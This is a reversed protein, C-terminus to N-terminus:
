YQATVTYVVTTSYELAPQGIDVQVKYTIVFEEDIIPTGEVTGPNDAVVDGPYSTAFAAYCPATGGGPCTSNNFRNVGQVLTDSSTYGFGRNGSLWQAPSAWTGGDFNIITNEGSTLLSTIYSRILYGNYANTSTTLTSTKTSTFNNGSNLNDFTVILSDINFDLDPAVQQGSSSVVGSTNGANDTARVNFYYIDTTNLTLGTVTVLTNTGVNTWNKINTGGVSTGISYEYYNLGSVSSDFNAWNGSLETLSATGFSKDVGPEDGDYVNGGTPATTDIGYDRESESNGGFSVWSSYADNDDKARAQWHYETNNTQSSITVSATQGSNVLNGCATDSNDFATGLPKTEVCLRVQDSDPDSVAASFVVSTENTWDGVALTTEDTKKQTLTSPSNPATNSLGETTFYTESSYSSWSGHNDQHRVKWYYTTDYALATQGSLVGQFTGNSSNVAVSTLNTSTTGSDWVINDGFNGGSHTSIQWQSNAHTDGANPDSFASSSLTPNRSQNEAGNSPSSNSPTNPALNPITYDVVVYVQTVRPDKYRNQNGATRASRIGVQLDNIATQTWVSSTAPNQTWTNSFNEYTTGLSHTGQQAVSGGSPKVLINLVPDNPTSGRGGDIFEHKARVHVTVSNITAGSLLNGTDNDIHYLDNSATTTSKQVYTTDDDATAEYVRTYNTGSNPTWTTEDGAANPRLTLTADIALQWMRAEEFVVFEQQTVQGLLIENDETMDQDIEEEEDTINEPMDTDETQDENEGEDSLDTPDDSPSSEEVTDMDGTSLEENGEEDVSDVDEEAFVNRILFSGQPLGENVPESELDYDVYLDTEDENDLAGNLDLMGEVVDKVEFFKLPGILYFDPSKPPTKFYYGLNVTDGQKVDVFWSLLKVGDREEIEDYSVNNVAPSIEFVSPVTEQIVGKFDEYATIRFTVPYHSPPYIRTATDREVDFDVSKVVEIRDSITYSGNATIATLTLEYSGPEDFVYESEFDPNLTYGHVLCDENVIITGNNTSLEDKLKFSSNEVTLLLDADCVMMGTEDLVAIAIKAKQGPLYVSKNFNIALVGWTFDQEYLVRNEDIVTIKYKGTEARYKPPIKIIGNELTYEEDKLETEILENGDFKSLVVKLEKPKYSGINIEVGENLQFDKETLKIRSIQIEKSITPTALAILLVTAISFYIGVKLSIKQKNRRKKHRIEALTPLVRM